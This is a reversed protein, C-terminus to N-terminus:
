GGAMGSIYPPKIYEGEIRRAAIVFATDQEANRLGVDIDPHNLLRKAASHFDTQCAFMLATFGGRNQLNVAINAQELLLEVIETDVDNVGQCAFMLPTTGSFDGLNVNILPHSLLLRCIPLDGKKVAKTLPTAGYCDCINPDIAPHSLLAQLKKEREVEEDLAFMLATRGFYVRGANPDVKPHNLFLELKEEAEVTCRVTLMLYTEGARNRMNVDINKDHNLLMLLTSPRCNSRIAMHLPTDGHEGRWNVHFPRQAMLIRVLQDNDYEESVGKLTASRSAEPKNVSARVLPHSLLLRCAPLDTNGMARQLPTLGYSDPVCPDIDPHALLLRMMEEREFRCTMALRLPTTGDHNKANVDFGGRELLIQLIAASCRGTPYIRAFVTICPYHLATNGMCDRYNPDFEKRYVLRKVTQAFEHDWRSTFLTQMPLYLHISPHELLMDVIDSLRRRLALSFPPEMSSNQRNVDVGPDQLLLEVVAKSHTRIAFHLATEQHYYSPRDLHKVLPLLGIIGWHAAWSYPAVVDFLIEYIGLRAEREQPFLLPVVEARELFEALALLADGHAQNDGVLGKAHLGLCQHAYDAFRSLFGVYYWFTRRSYACKDEDPWAPNYMDRPVHGCPICREPQLKNNVVSPYDHHQLYVICTLTTITPHESFPAYDLKRLYDQATYHILRVEAVSKQAEDQTRRRGAVEKSGSIVLGCCASLIIDPPTVSDPDFTRDEYSTALAHQLEIMSLARKARALWMLALKALTADAEDQLNIRDMTRHYVDEVGSPLSELVSKLASINRSGTIAEIQLAAVLFMGCSKEKVKDVIEQELDKKGHLLRRLRPSGKIREVVFRELDDDRALISISTVEPLADKFLDLPRSFILLQIPLAALAELLKSKEEDVVEDLADIVARVRAFRPLIVKLLAVIEYLSPQTQRIRHREYTPKLASHVLPHAELLQRVITSLVGRATCKDLYRCYVFADGTGASINEDSPIVYDVSLSALYSKGAGPMGTVWLTGSTGSAWSQFEDSHVFWLGTGATRRSKIDDHYPWYNMSDPLWNAMKTVEDIIDEEAGSYHVHIDRGAMFAKDLTFDHAGEFSTSGIPSLLVSSAPSVLLTAKRVAPEPPMTDCTLLWLVVPCSETRVCRM